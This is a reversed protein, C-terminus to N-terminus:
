KLCFVALSIRMLSQLESTQEESRLIRGAAALDADRASHGLVAAEAERDGVGADAHGALFNELGELREAADVMRQGRVELADAEAQRQGLRHDLHVAAPQLDVADAIAACRCRQHEGGLTDAGRALRLPLSSSIIFSSLIWLGDDRVLSRLRARDPIWTTAQRWAARDNARERGKKLTMDPSSVPMWPSRETAQGQVRPDIGLDSSCVDSSWDSIRM